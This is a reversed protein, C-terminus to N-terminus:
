KNLMIELIAKDTKDFGNAVLSGINEITKEVDDNIIGDNSCPEINSMALISCQIAANVATAIKLACTSKAGDCIIGSVDALMNKIACKINKIDGGLLYTMAASAGTSAAIGAGCIPSLRGMYGKIYITILSSIALARALEEESKGLEEALVVSPIICTIGQNGSGATTMIPLKCGSMRADSAAATAAVIKNILNNGLANFQTSKSIKNGVELGYPQNLGEDSVKKNMEAGNLLFKIDEFGVNVAFNYIDEISFLKDGSACEKSLETGKSEEESNDIIAKIPLEEIKNLKEKNDESDEYEFIKVGNHEIFVINTHEHKIIVRSINSKYKCIAEIFLKEETDSVTIKIREEKVINKAMLLQEETLDSLLQLGLSSNNCVAGLAAAINIGSMGTGPIGVGLANKIINVSLNLEIIEPLKGLVEAGKCVAYAVAIPETCGLAPVVERKLMNLYEATKNM